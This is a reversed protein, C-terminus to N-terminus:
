RKPDVHLTIEGSYKVKILREIKQQVDHVQELCLTGPLTVHCDFFYFAGSRRGRLKHVDVVGVGLALIDEAVANKISHSIDKDMLEDISQRSLNFGSFILVASLVASAVADFWVWGSLLVILITIASFVNSWVDSIYHAADAKLATSSHVKSQMMLYRSLLLSALATLSFFIIVFFSTKGSPLQASREGYVQMFCTYLAFVGGAMILSAQALAALSEARGHGYPHDADAETRSYRVVRFNILSIISDTFSDWGSLGVVILHTEFFCGWKLLSLIMAFIAAAIAATQPNKTSIWKLLPIKM